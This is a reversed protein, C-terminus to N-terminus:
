TSVAYDFHRLQLSTKDEGEASKIKTSIALADRESEELASFIHHYKQQLPHETDASEQALLPTLYSSILIYFVAYFVKM